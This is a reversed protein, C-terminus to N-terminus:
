MRERAVCQFVSCCVAVCQLVSCCVAVRETSLSPLDCDIYCVLALPLRACVCMRTRSLFIRSVVPHGLSM